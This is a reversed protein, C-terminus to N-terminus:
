RAGRGAGGAGAAPVPDPDPAAPAARPGARAGLEHGRAGPHQVAGPGRCRGRPPPLSLLRPCPLARTRASPPQATEPLPCARIAVARIARPGGPARVRLPAEKRGPGM